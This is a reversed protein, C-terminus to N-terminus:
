KTLGIVLYKLKLSIITKVEFEEKKTTSTDIHLLQRKYELKTDALYQL